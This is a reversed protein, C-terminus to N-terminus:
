SAIVGIAKTSTRITSHHGSRDWLFRPPEQVRSVWVLLLPPPLRPVPDTDLGEERLIRREDGVWVARHVQHVGLEQELRAPDVSGGLQAVREGVRERIRAAIEPLREHLQAVTQQVSQCRGLLMERLRARHAAVVSIDDGSGLGLNMGDRNPAGYAGTSSGGARTTIIARVGPPVPWDPHIWGSSKM